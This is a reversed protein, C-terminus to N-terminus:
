KQNIFRLYPHNIRIQRSQPGVSLHHKLNAQHVPTSSARIRTQVYRHAIPLPSSVVCMQLSYIEAESALCLRIKVSNPWPNNLDMVLPIGVRNVAFAIAAFRFKM